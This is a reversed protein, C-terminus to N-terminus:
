FRRLPVAAGAILPDVVESLETWAYKGAEPGDGLMTNVFMTRLESRYAVLYERLGADANGKHESVFIAGLWRILGAARLQRSAATM